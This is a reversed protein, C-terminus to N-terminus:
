DRYKENNKLLIGEKNKFKFKINNAKTIDTKM